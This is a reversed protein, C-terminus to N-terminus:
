FEDDEEEEFKGTLGLTELAKRLHGHASSIARMDDTGAEGDAILKGIKVIQARAAVASEAANEKATKSELTSEELMRDYLEWDWAPRNRKEESRMAEKRKTKRRPGSM